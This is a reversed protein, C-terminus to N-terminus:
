GARRKRNAIQSIARSSEALVSARQTPSDPLDGERVREMLIGGPYKVPRWGDKSDYIVTSGTEPLMWKM